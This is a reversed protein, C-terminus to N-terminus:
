RLKQQNRLGQEPATIEIREPSQRQPITMTSPNLGQRQHEFRALWLDMVPKTQEFVVAIHGAIEEYLKQMKAYQRLDNGYVNGSVLDWFADKAQSVPLEYNRAIAQWFNEIKDRNEPRFIADDLWSSMSCPEGGNIGFAVATNRDIQTSIGFTYSEAHKIDDFVVGDVPHYLVVAGDDGFSVQAICSGHHYLHCMTMEMYRGPLSAEYVALAQYEFSRIDADFPALIGGVEVFSRGQVFGHYGHAQARQMVTSKLSILEEPTRVAPDVYLQAYAADNNEDYFVCAKLGSEGLEFMKVPKQVRVQGLSLGPLAGAIASKIDATNGVQFSLTTRDMEEPLEASILLYTNAKDIRSMEMVEDEARWSFAESAGTVNRARYRPMKQKLYDYDM